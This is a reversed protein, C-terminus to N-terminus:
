PMWYDGLVKINSDNLQLWKDVRRIMATAQQHQPPTTAFPDRYVTPWQIGLEDVAFRSNKAAVTM